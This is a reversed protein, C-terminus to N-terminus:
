EDAPSFEVALRLFGSIGLEEMLAGRCGWVKGREKQNEAM